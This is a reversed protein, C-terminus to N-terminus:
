GGYLLISILGAICQGRNLVPRMKRSQLFEIPPYNFPWNFQFFVRCKVRFVPMKKRHHEKENSEFTEMRKHSIKMGIKARYKKEKKEKEKKKKNKMTLEYFAVVPPLQVIVKISFVKSCLFNEYLFSVKVKM